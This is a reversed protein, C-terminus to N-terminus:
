RDQDEQPRSAHDLLCVRTGAWLSLISPVWIGIYMGYEQNILFWMSVSFVFSGAAAILFLMDIKQYM